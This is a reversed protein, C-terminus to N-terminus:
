QYARAIEAEAIEIERQAAELAAVAAQRRLEAQLILREQVIQMLEVNVCPEEGILDQAGDEYGVEYALDDLMQFVLMAGQYGAGQVDVVM